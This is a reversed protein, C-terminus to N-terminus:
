AHADTNDLLARLAAGNRLLGTGFIPYAERILLQGQLISMRVESLLGCVNRVAERAWISPLDFTQEVAAIRLEQLTELTAIQYYSGHERGLFVVTGWDRHSDAWRRQYVEAWDLRQQWRQGLLVLIQTPGVIVLLGTALATFAISFDSSEM